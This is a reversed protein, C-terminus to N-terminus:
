DRLVRVKGLATFFEMLRANTVGNQVIDKIALDLRRNRAALKRERREDDANSDDIEQETPEVISGDPLVKNWRRAFTFGDPITRLEEESPDFSVQDAPLSTARKIIQTLKDVVVIM